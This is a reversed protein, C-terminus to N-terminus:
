KGTREGHGVGYELPAGFGLSYFEKGQNFIVGRIQLTTPPFGEATITMPGSFTCDRNVTLTGTVSAELPYPGLAEYLKGTYEGSMSVDIDFLTTDAYAKNPDPSVVDQVINQTTIVYHGKLSQPGCFNVPEGASRIRHTFNVWTVPNGPVIRISRAERGNNFVIFREVITGGFPSPYTFKGTCDANMETVTVDAVIPDPSATHSGLQIWYYVKGKGDPGFTVEGVTAFPALAAAWHTPAPASTLDVIASMGKEQFAYTGAMTKLSCTEQAKAAPAAISLCVLVAAAAFINVKM